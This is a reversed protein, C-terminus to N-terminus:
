KMEGIELHGDPPHLARRCVRHPGHQRATRLSLAGPTAEHGIGVLLNKKTQRKKIGGQSTIWDARGGKGKEGGM